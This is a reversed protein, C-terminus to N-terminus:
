LRATAMVSGTANCRIVVPSDTSLRVGGPIVRALAPPHEPCEESSVVSMVTETISVFTTQATIGYQTEFPPGGFGYAPLAVATPLSVTAIHHIRMPSQAIGGALSDYLPMGWSTDGALGLPALDLGTDIPVPDTWTPATLPVGDRFAVRTPVEPVYDGRQDPVAALLQVVFGYHYTSTGIAVVTDAPISPATLPVSVDFTFAGDAMAGGSVQRDSTATWSLSRATTADSAPTMTIRYAVVRVAVGEVYGPTPYSSPNSEVLHVDVTSFSGDYTRAAVTGWGGEDEYVTAWDAVTWRSLRGVIFAILVDQQTDTAATLGSPLPASFDTGAALTEFSSGGLYEVSIM